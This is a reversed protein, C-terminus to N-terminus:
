GSIAHLSILPQDDPNIIEDIQQETVTNADEVEVLFINHKKCTHGLIYKEDCGSCIGKM